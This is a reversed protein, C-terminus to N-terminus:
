GGPREREEWWSRRHERAEEDEIGHGAGGHRAGSAGEPMHKKGASRRERGDSLQRSPCRRKEGSVERLPCRAGGACGSGRSVVM